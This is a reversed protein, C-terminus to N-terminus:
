LTQLSIAGSPCVQICLACGTCKDPDVTPINQGRDQIAQHGGDRCSTICLGCLSCSESIVATLNLDPQLAFLSEEIQLNAKGVLAHVSKISQKKLYATLGTQLSTVLKYGSWMVATCLQVTSSGLLIFEAADQWTSIGGVGSIPIDVLRNVKSVAQLAVPKIGPGSYGSYTSSGQIDPIPVMTDLNVGLVAPLSNIATIGSAEGELCVAAMAPWDRVTFPLKPIVPIDVVETVWKIVKHTLDPTEGVILATEIGLTAHSCSLNLELGDFGAEAMRAAMDQWISQDMEAGLSGLVIRDPFKDKLVPLAKAWEKIGWASSYSINGMGIRKNQHSYAALLPRPEGAPGRNLLNESNITKIVAGAWGAAFARELMEATETPPGSALIFPNILNFGAFQIQLSFNTKLMNKYGSLLFNIM